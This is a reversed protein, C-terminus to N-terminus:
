GSTAERKLATHLVQAASTLDRVLHGHRARLRDDNSRREILETVISQLVLPSVPWDRHSGSNEVAMDIHEAALLLDPTTLRDM